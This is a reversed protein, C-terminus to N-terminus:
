AVYEAFNENYVTAFEEAKFNDASLYKLLTEIDLAGKYKFIM